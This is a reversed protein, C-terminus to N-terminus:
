LVPQEGAAVAIEFRIQKWWQLQRLARAAQEMRWRVARMAPDFILGARNGHHDIQVGCADYSAVIDLMADFRPKPLRRQNIRASETAIRGLLWPDAQGIAKKMFQRLMQFIEIEHRDYQAAPPSHAVVPYLPPVEFGLVAIPPLERGFFDLASGDDGMLLVPPFSPMSVADQQPLPLPLKGCQLYGNDNFFVGQLLEGHIIPRATNLKARYDHFISNNILYYTM